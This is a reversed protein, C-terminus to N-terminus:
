NHTEVWTLVVGRPVLLAADNKYLRTCGPSKLSPTVMERGVEVGNDLPLKPFSAEGQLITEVYTAVLCRWNKCVLSCTAFSHYSILVYSLIYFNYRTQHKPECKCHVSFFNKASVLHIETKRPSINKLSIEVVFVAVRRRRSVTLFGTTRRAANLM